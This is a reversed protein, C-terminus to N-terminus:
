PEPHVTSVTWPTAATDVVLLRFAEVDPSPPALAGAAVAFARVGPSTTVHFSAVVTDNAGAPTVGIPIQGTGISTGSAGSATPFTLGSVLVPNVVSEVNLIGLDVAPADPSAHVFRARAEGADARDFQEAFTALRFAQDGSAGLFGTAITLYRQGAALAGTPATVAPESTPEAGAPRFDIPYDGPPVQVPGALEGFSLSALEAEGAYLDVAPADPSAHLAYLLPNQAVFGLAGEPGIALLAFGQPDDARRAVLGTAVVLIEAGEPLGPTTFATVRSGSAAIGIQLAADATL